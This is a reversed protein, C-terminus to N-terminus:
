LTMRVEVVYEMLEKYFLEFKGEFYPLNEDITVMAKETKDPLSTYQSMLQISEEIGDIQAYSLLRNAAKMKPLFYQVREPLVDVHSNLTNYAFASFEELDIECYSDWHKGLLHDFLMDAIVGSYLGYDPRFLVKCDRQLPHADTFSDIRRHLLIGTAIEEPFNQHQKGKVYDGIFNGVM